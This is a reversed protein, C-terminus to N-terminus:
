LNKGVEKRAATVFPFHTHGRRRSAESDSGQEKYVQYEKFYNDTHIWTVQM